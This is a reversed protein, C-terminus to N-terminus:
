HDLRLPDNVGKGMVNWLTELPYKRIIVDKARNFEEDTWDPRTLTVAIQSMGMKIDNALVISRGPQDGPRGDFLLLYISDRTSLLNITNRAEEHIANIHLEYLNGLLQIVLVVVAVDGVFILASRVGVQDQGSRFRAIVDPTERIGFAVQLHAYEFTKFTFYLATGVEARNLYYGENMPM